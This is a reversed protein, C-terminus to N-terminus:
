LSMKQKFVDWFFLPGSIFVRKWLRKPEKLLRPLWELGLGRWFPGSRKKVGAFFDFVAGVSCTIEAKLLHKNKEVWKEQKPATMGVFLINPQFENIAQLASDNDEGVLEDKYPPSYSKVIVNPYEQHIKKEIANLTEVTSGFYFVKLSEQDAKKLLVAHLDSGTLRKSQINNLFKLAIVIGVGDPILINAQELANQFVSDQKAVVYSHPNITNIIVNEGQKIAQVQKIQQELDGIFVPYGLLKIRTKEM